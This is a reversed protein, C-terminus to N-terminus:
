FKYRTYECECPNGSAIYITGEEPLMIFSALTVSSISISPDIHRCISYPIKDHDRLIKKAIEVDINGYNQNLLNQIRDSRHYSDPQLQPANDEERFRETLYHNSHFLIDREPSIVEFDNYISEIGFMNGRRDVLHYYGIGRAVQKLIALADHINEARMVKPMYCGIPINFAYNKGLTANACMGLGASSLVIESSNSFSLIFQQLGNEHHVKLLDIPTEPLFDINQALINKGDLTAKGRAAFSTCLGSSINNYHFMMENFCKQTFIEELSLGTADAQGKMIEVLYPDFAKVMPFYKMAHAIVEEKSAKYYLAMGSSINESIKLIHEKCGEGWQRGIEYPSGQCEILKFEKTIKM